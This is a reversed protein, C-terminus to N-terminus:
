QNDIDLDNNFAPKSDFNQAPPKKGLKRNLNDLKSKKTM